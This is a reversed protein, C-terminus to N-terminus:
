PEWQFYEKERGVDVHVFGKSAYVIIGTFGCERAAAVVDKQSTNKVVIDAACGLMHRSKTAGGIAKNHSPSRYASNITIPKGLIDRMRQLGYLLSDEICVITFGDKSVFESKRFNKTLQIDPESTFFVM